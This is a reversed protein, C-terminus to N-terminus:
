VKIWGLSLWAAILTLGGIPTIPGVVKKLRSEPPLFTSTYIGFSFGLIGLTFLHAAVKGPHSAAATGSFTLGVLALTHVLQYQM